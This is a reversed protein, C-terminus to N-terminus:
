AAKPGRKRPGKGEALSVDRASGIGLETRRGARSYMFLWRRRGKDDLDLYLGDGDAYRKPETFSAVQRATLKKAQRAM